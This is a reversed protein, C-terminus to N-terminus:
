QMTQEVPYAPSKAGHTEWALTHRTCYKEESETWPSKNIHPDLHNHWRERCQKGTRKSMVQSTELAQSVATWNKTGYKEVLKCIM